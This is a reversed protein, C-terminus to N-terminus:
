PILFMVGQHELMEKSVKINQPVRFALKEERLLMVYRQQGRFLKKEPAIYIVVKAGGTLIKTDYLRPDTIRQFAQIWSQDSPTLTITSPSAPDALSALPSLESRKLVRGRLKTKKYRLGDSGSYLKQMQELQEVPTASRTHVLRTDWKKIDWNK